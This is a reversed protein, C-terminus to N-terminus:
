RQTRGLCWLASSSKALVKNSMNKRNRAVYACVFGYADDECAVGLDDVRLIDVVADCPLDLLDSPPFAAFHHAVAQICYALLDHRGFAHRQLLPVAGAASIYPLLGLISDIEQEYAEAPLSDVFHCVVEELGSPFNHEDVSEMLMKFHAPSLAALLPPEKVFEPIHAEFFRQM